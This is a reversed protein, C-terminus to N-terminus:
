LMGDEGRGPGRPLGSGANPGSWSCGYGRVQVELGGECWAVGLFDGKRRM